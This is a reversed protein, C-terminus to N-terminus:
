GSVPLGLPDVVELDPFLGRMHTVNWTVIRPLDHELAAQGILRDYLRPGVGGTAAYARVAGFTQGPSLGILVTLAAVSEMAAWAEEATWQFPATPSPRTLTSYAEVYSHATVAFTRAPRKAFLALSAEHHEHAEAVAAILVNSDLLAEAGSM